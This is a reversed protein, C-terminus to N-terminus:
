AVTVDYTGAKIPFRFSNVRVEGVKGGAGMSTVRITGAHQPNDASVAGTEARFTFALEQTTSAFADRLEQNLGDADSDELVEIELFYKRAGGYEDEQGTSLNAPVTVTNTEGVVRVSSVYAAYSTAALTFAGTYQQFSM